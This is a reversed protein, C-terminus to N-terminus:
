RAGYLLLLSLAGALLLAALLLWPIRWGTRPAAPANPEPRPATTEREAAALVLSPHTPMTAAEVVFRHQTGFVLQAGPALLAHRVPRGNVRTGHASGLDRLVAGEPHPELRAHREAFGPEDIRIECARQRGVLLPRDLVIARGHHTGGVGRLVIAAGASTGSVAEEPAPAPEPGVLSLQYGDVHLTDGMRLMAMHRIPRGNVHIGRVDDRLQLWIGRRDICFQVIGRGPDDVLAPLGGDDRGLAHVGPGLPLDDHERNPFQLRIANVRACDLMTRATVPVRDRPM